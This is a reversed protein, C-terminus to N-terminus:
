LIRLKTPVADGRRVSPKLPLRRLAATKHRLTCRPMSPLPLGAGLGGRVLCTPMLCAATRAWRRKSAARM